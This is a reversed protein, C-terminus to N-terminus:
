EAMIAIPPAPGQRAKALIWAGTGILALAVMLAVFARLLWDTVDWNKKSTCLIFSGLLIGAILLAGVLVGLTGM